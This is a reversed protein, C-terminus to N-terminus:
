RCNIVDVYYARKDVFILTDVLYMIYLRLACARHHLVHADNDDAEVAVDLHYRYMEELFTLRAHCGKTDDMETQADSSDTELYQVMM